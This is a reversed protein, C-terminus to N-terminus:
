PSPNFGHAYGQRKYVDKILTVAAIYTAFFCNYVFHAADSSLPRPTDHSSTTFIELTNGLLSLVYGKAALDETSLDPDRRREGDREVRDAMFELNGGM